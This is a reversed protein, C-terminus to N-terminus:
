FLSICAVITRIKQAGCYSECTFNEQVQSKLTIPGFGTDLVYKSMVIGNEVVYTEENISKIVRFQPSKEVSSAIEPGSRGTIIGNERRTCLPHLPVHSADHTLFALVYAKSAAVCSADDSEHCISPYVLSSVILFLLFCSSGRDM